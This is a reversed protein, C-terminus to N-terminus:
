SCLQSLRRFEILGELLRQHDSTNNYAHTAARLRGGRVSTVVNRSLLFKRAQAYEPEGAADAAAWRIGVIGSRNELSQPLQAEFGNQQLLEALEQANHLIAAELGNAAQNSGLELLVSLSQGFAMMGVMNTSGGEYRAATHKLQVSNPDFGASQLSNWGIGLPQLMELHDQKVFMLGAGEPGLMWKHGDAALFDIDTTKVSLPFAGLGQIADVFLLSSRRHVLAAIQDLDCRFGSSFGVWSVSVLRTRSDIQEALAAADLQGLPGVRALRLEVGLRALNRWPLLNSPFENEPVVVNDGAQWPLGEAVLGIAQTTNGVLAIECEDADILEASLRRTRGVAASWDLWRTDGERTAQEAFTKISDAARAPLPSVAAHDLYAYHPSIPMEQRLKDRVGAPDVM